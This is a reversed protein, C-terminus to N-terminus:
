GACIHNDTQPTWEYVDGACVDMATEHVMAGQCGEGSYNMAWCGPAPLPIEISSGTALGPPMLPFESADSGDCRVFTVVEIANGTTNTIRVAAVPDDAFCADGDTPEGSSEDALMSCRFDGNACTTDSIICGSQVGVALLWAGLALSRALSPRLRM